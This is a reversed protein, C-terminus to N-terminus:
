GSGPWTTRIANAVGSAESELAGALPYPTSLFADDGSRYQMGIAVIREAKQHVDEHSLEDQLYLAILICCALGVALRFLNIFIYGNQRKLNRFDITIYNKLM